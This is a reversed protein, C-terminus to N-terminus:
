GGSLLAHLPVQCFRSRIWALQLKRSGEDRARIFWVNDWSSSACRWQYCRFDASIDNLCGKMHLFGVILPPYARPLRSQIVCHISFLDSIFPILLRSSLDYRGCAIDLQYYCFDSTSSIWKQGHVVKAKEKRMIVPVRTVSIEFLIIFVYIRIVLQARARFAHVRSLFRYMDIPRSDSMWRVRSTRLTKRFSFGLPDISRLFRLHFRCCSLFFYLPFVTFKEHSSHM